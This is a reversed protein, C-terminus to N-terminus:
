LARRARPDLLEQLGDGVLTFALVLVFIALGPFFIVWWHTLFYERGSSIMLGWEPTPPQAGLGLFSLAAATLIVAGFDLSAEM